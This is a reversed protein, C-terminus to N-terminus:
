ATKPLEQFQLISLVIAHDHAGKPLGVRKMRPGAIKRAHKRQPTRTFQALARLSKAGRALKRPM